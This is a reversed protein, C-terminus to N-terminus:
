TDSEGYKEQYKKLLKTITKSQEKYLNANELPTYKLQRYNWTSLDPADFPVCHIHLHDSVTSQAEIGGDRIIYQMGKIDHVKRILKKAIYMFKRVTEWEVDTLEKVSRVHRRPVIMCNGDIYAYLAVTMVIGNEELFIYKERMGCFVCKGVSTWIKGYYGGTRADRYYEQKKKDEPSLKMM